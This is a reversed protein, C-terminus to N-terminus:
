SREIRDAAATRASPASPLPIRQLCTAKRAQWSPAHM